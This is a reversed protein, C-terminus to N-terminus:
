LFGAWFHGCNVSVTSTRTVFKRGALPFFEFVSIKLITELLGQLSQMPVLAANSGLDM